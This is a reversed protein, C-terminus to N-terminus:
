DRSDPGDTNDYVNLDPRRASPPAEGMTQVENFHATIETPLDEKTREVETLAARREDEKEKEDLLANAIEKENASLTGVKRELERIQIDRVIAKAEAEAEAELTTIDTFKNESSM